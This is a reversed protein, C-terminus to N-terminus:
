SQEQYPGFKVQYIQNKCNERLKIMKGNKVDWMTKPKLSTTTDTALYMNKM